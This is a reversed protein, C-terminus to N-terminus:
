GYFGRVVRGFVNRAFGAGVSIKASLGQYDELLSIINWNKPDGEM